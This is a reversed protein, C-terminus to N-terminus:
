SWDKFNEMHPAVHLGRIETKICHVAEQNAYEICSLSASQKGLWISKMTKKLSEWDKDSIPETLSTPKPLADLKRVQSQAIM